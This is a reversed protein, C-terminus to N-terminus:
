PNGLTTITGSTGRYKLTGSEVYLQGYGAVSSSPATGNAISLINTGSTGAGSAGSGGLTLGTFTGTSNYLIAMGNSTQALLNLILSQTNGSNVVSVFLRGAPTIGGSSNGHVIINADGDIAQIKLSDNSTANSHWKIIPLSTEEEFTIGNENLLTRGFGTGGRGVEIQGTTSDIKLQKVSSVLGYIGTRDIWIGTGSSSSTPPTTGISIASSAGSLSLTSTLASLAINGSISLTTGDWSLKDKLSFQGLSDVYFGTNSNNFTGTGVFMKGSGISVGGITANGSVVLNGNEDWSILSNALFGSGDVNLRIRETANSRLALAVPTIIINSKNTDVEGVTINGNNEWKGVVTSLGNFIRIGNTSDITLHHTGTAYKGLCIGYTDTGYGCLGNLNGIAWNETWDNYTASNRINGVITPGAQASSKVGRVSYLDIFGNGTTGTNVLADGAFWQNAGTGDLNRTVSYSFGGAIVSASSTIAIFEVSSNGELYIRDGNNLNNYKVNITVTSPALDAILLNSPAIIVRGGITAITNQAVLTEVFLEAAHLSLYKKDIQGLNQDFNIFPNIKKGTANFTVSGTPAVILNGDPNATLDVYNTNDVNTLRIQPNSTDLIDLRRRPTTTNIGVNTSFINDQTFINIADKRPINSSLRNDNLTGLAINTANLNILNAGSVAPLVAPFRADLLTGANLDGADRTEISNFNSGTFNLGSFTYDGNQPIVIGSRGNFLTVGSEGGGGSAIIFVDSITFPVPVNTGSFKIDYRGAAAYFSWSADTNATFPNAKATGSEDSFISALTLTGSLYVTVTASPYTEMLKYQTSPSTKVNKGGKSAIGSIKINQAPTLTVCYLILSIIFIFKRM